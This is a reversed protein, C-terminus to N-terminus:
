LLTKFAGGVALVEAQFLDFYLKLHKVLQWSTQKKKRIRLENLKVAGGGGGKLSEESRFHPTVRVTFPANVKSKIAQTEDGYIYSERNVRM